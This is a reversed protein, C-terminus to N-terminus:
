LLLITIRKLSTSQVIYSIMAKVKKNRNQRGWNNFLLDLELLGAEFAIPWFGRIGTAIKYEKTEMHRWFIKYM